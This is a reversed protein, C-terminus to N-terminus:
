AVEVWSQTGEDWRYKNGDDPYPVPAEFSCTQENFVWSSFGNVAWLQRVQEKKEEMESATMNRVNHSDKYVSGDLVYSTSEHVEYPGLEPPELRVFEAFDSPLNNMDVNPFAEVFNSEFIPHEFPAGDVIRIFLRMM